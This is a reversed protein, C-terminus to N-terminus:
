RWVWDQPLVVQRLVARSATGAAAVPRDDFIWILPRSSGSRM